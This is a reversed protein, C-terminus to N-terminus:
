IKNKIQQSPIVSLFFLSDRNKNIVSIQLCLTKNTLIALLKSVLTRLDTNYYVCEGAIWDFKHM